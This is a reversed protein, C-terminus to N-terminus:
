EMNMKLKHLANSKIQSVRSEGIGLSKGLARSSMGHFYIGIIVKKERENLTSGFLLSELRAKTEKLILVDRVNEKTDLLSEQIEDFDVRVINNSNIKKAIKKYKELSIKLTEILQNENPDSQNLLYHESKAQELKKQASRVKTPVYDFHRLGDYIAHRIKSILYKKLNNKGNYVFRDIGELLGIVGYGLLDKQDLNTKIKNKIRYAMRDVLPLYKYAISRDNM